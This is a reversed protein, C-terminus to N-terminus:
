GSPAPDALASRNVIAVAAGLTAPFAVLLLANAPGGRALQGAAIAGAALGAGQGTTIWTFAEVARGPAVVRDLLEFGAVNLLGFGAGALVAVAAIGALSPVALCAPLVIAVAISGALFRWSASRRRLGRGSWLSLAISGAAFLALPVAALAAAGSDAAVAPAAVELAGLWVGLGIECAVLTRLGGSEHLAGWIGHGTPGAAERALRSPAARVLILAGLLPGPALLALAVAPSVLAAMAGTLAPGAVQAGDGLAANLAHGARVLEPGTVQPWISRATAILPPASAGALGAGGALAWAHPFSGCGLLVLVLAGAHVLALLVLTRVGRRDVLRGRLPALLASGAAFASVAAGAAAFSGTAAHVALVIGLIYSSFSLSGLGCALAVARAARRALLVRYSSM